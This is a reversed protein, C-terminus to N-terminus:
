YPRITWGSSLEVLELGRSGLALHLEQPTGTYNVRVIAGGVMIQVLDMGQVGAATLLNQRIQALQEPGTFMLTAELTQSAGALPASPAAPPTEPTAAGGGQLHQAIVNTAEAAAETLSIDSLPYTKEFSLTPQAPLAVLRVRIGTQDQEALMLVANASKYRSLLPAVTEPTAEAPTSFATWDETDGLPLRFPVSGGALDLEVLARRWPNDDWIVAEAGGDAWVPILLIGDAAAPAPLNIGKALFAERVKAPLFSITLKGIYRGPASRESEVSLSALMRGVDAPPLTAMIAGGSEGALRKALEAFAKVQAEEIAKLRAQAADAATVDVEVGTVTFQQKEEPTTAGASPAVLGLMLALAMVRGLTEWM